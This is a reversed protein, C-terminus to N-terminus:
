AFFARFRNDRAFRMQLFPVYLVVLALLLAGLIGIMPNRHGQGLLTLPLALWLFAGAFGRVGLWFYYPLRLARVFASVGAWAETCLGGRRVRRALWIVNLPSFFYRLKGGRFCASTVHLVFVVTLVTMAVDWRAAIPGDPDIIQASVALSSLLWLP